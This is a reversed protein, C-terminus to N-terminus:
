MKLINSYISDLAITFAGYIIAKQELASSKVRVPFPVIKFVIEDLPTIFDYGLDMLKGGLVILDLDLLIIINSLVVGLVNVVKEMEEMVFPDKCQVAKFIIKSNIRTLDGHVLDYILPSRGHRVGNKINEIIAPIGVRSELPGVSQHNYNVDDINLAFYGVEGAALRNGEYLTNNLIIGAGVGIDISVFVLNKYEKGVGYVSEGLAALNMDNKFIIEVNFRKRLEEKINLDEWLYLWMPLALVRGNDEIIGPFGIAIALLKEIKINNKNFIDFINEAIIDLIKKGININAIDLTRLEVIESSLNALAIKLDQGSMDVGIIYGYNFNFQVLIPRRGGISDGEGIEILIKKEILDNINKSVSPASLKLIKALEARSTAGNKVLTDIILQQNNEKITGQNGATREM